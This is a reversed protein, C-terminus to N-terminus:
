QESNKKNVILMETVEFLSSSKSKIYIMINERRRKGRRERMWNQDFVVVVREATKKETKMKNKKDSAFFSAFWWVCM